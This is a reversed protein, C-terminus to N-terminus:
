QRNKDLLVSRYTDYGGDHHEDVFAGLPFCGYRVDQLIGFSHCSDIKLAM